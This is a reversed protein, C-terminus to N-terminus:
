PAIDELVIDIEVAGTADIEMERGVLNGPFRPPFVDVHYKGAPVVVEQDLVTSLWFTLETRAVSPPFPEIGILELFKTYFREPVQNMRYLIMESMWAFLEILTVGPDHVNHDTWRPVKQQVMRKSENVLDQFRRDDLNPIPLAM